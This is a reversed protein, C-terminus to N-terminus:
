ANNGEAESILKKVAEQRREQGMKCTINQWQM